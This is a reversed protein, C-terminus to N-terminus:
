TDPPGGNLLISSPSISFTDRLADATVDRTTLVSVTLVTPHHAPDPSIPYVEALPSAYMPRTAAGKIVTGSMVTVDTTTPAGTPSVSPDMLATRATTTPEPSSSEVTLVIVYGSTIDPSPLLSDMAVILRSTAEPPRSPWVRPDPKPADTSRDAAPITSGFEASM